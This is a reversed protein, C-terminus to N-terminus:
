GLSFKYASLFGTLFPFFCCFHVMSRFVVLSRLLFQRKREKESYSIASDKFLPCSINLEGIFYLLCVFWLTFLRATDNWFIWKFNFNHFCLLATLKLRCEFLGLIKVLISDPPSLRGWHFTKESVYTSYGPLINGKRAKIEHLIRKVTLEMSPSTKPLPSAIRLRNGKTITTLEILKNPRFLSRWVNTNPTPIIRFPM